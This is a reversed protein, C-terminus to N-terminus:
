FYYYDDDDDHLKILSTIDSILDTILLIFLYVNLFLFM